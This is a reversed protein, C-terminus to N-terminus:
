KMGKPVTFGPAKLVSDNFQILGSTKFNGRCQIQGKFSASEVITIDKDSSLFGGGPNNKDNWISGCINMDGNSMFMTLGNYAVTETGMGFQFDGAFFMRVNGTITGTLVVPKLASFIFTVPLDSEPGNIQNLQIGHNYNQNDIFIIRGASNGADVVKVRKINYPDSEDVLNSLDWYYDTNKATKITSPWTMDPMPPMKPYKSIDFIREPLRTKLTPRNVSDTWENTFSNNNKVNYFGSGYLKGLFRTDIDDINFDKQDQVVTVTGGAQVLGPLELVEEGVSDGGGSGGDDGFIYTKRMVKRIGQCSGVSTIIYNAKDGPITVDVENDDKIETIATAYWVGQKDAKQSDLSNLYFDGSKIEAIKSLWNNWESSGDNLSAIARKYGAEAAYWAQQERYDSSAAMKEMTMMPLWAIAIIMLFLLMVVAIVTVSGRQKQVLNM